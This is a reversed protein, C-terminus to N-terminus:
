RGLLGNDRLFQELVREYAGLDEPWDNHGCNQEYYTAHRALGALARGQATPVVQDLTGHAILVPIDLEALVEDNRFPHRV